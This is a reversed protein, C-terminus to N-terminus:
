VNHDAVHQLISQRINYVISENGVHILIIQQTIISNKSKQPFLIKATTMLFEDIQNYLSKLSLRCSAKAHIIKDDRFVCCLAGGVDHAEEIQILAM